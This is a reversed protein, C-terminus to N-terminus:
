LLLDGDGRVPRDVAEAEDAVKGEAWGKVEHRALSHHPHLSTARTVAEVTSTDLELLVADLRWVKSRTTPLTDLGKQCLVLQCLSGVVLLLTHGRPAQPKLLAARPEDDRCCQLRTAPPTSSGIMNILPTRSSEWRPPGVALVVWGM